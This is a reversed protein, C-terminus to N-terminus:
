LPRGPSAKSSGKKPPVRGIQNRASYLTAIPAWGGPCWRLQRGDHWRAGHILWQSMANIVIFLVDLFPVLLMSSSVDIIVALRWGITSAERGRELDQFM